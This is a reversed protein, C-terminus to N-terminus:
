VAFQGTPNWGEQPQRMTYSLCKGTPEQNPFCSKAGAESWNACPAQTSAWDPVIKEPIEQDARWTQRVRKTSSRPTSHRSRFWRPMIVVVVLDSPDADLWAPPILALSSPRPGRFFVIRTISSTTCPGRLPRQKTKSRCSVNMTPRDRK